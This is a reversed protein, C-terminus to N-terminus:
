TVFALIKYFGSPTFFLVLKWASPSHEGVHCKSRQSTVKCEWVSCMANLTVYHSGNYIMGLLKMKYMSLYIFLVIPHFTKLRLGAGELWSKSSQRVDQSEFARGYQFSGNRDQRKFPHAWYTLPLVRISCVIGTNLYASVVTKLWMM